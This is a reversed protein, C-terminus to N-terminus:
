EQTVNGYIDPFYKSNEAVERLVVNAILEFGAANPHLTNKTDDGDYSPIYDEFSDDNKIGSESYIDVVTAGFHEAIEAIKGNFEPLYESKSKWLTSDLVNLCYIEVGEYERAIKYLMIAYAEAVTEPYYDAECKEELNDFDIKSTDGFSNYYKGFDNTGLYVFVMDPETGADEGTNDHLNVARELYGGPRGNSKSDRIYSGSDSNNVLLEAGLANITRM